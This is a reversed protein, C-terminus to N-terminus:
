PWEFGTEVSAPGVVPSSSFSGGGTNNLEPFSPSFLTKAIEFPPVLRNDAEDLYSEEGRDVNLTEGNAITYQVRGEEVTLHPPAFEFATGRVSATVSPSHVTFQTKRGAPPSVEARVRGSRLYLSVEEGGERQVLEELTLRTLPRIILKSNELSVLATSKFSTSIVAGKAITM